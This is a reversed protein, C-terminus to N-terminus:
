LIFFLFFIYTYIVVNKKCTCAQTLPLLFHYKSLRLPALNVHLKEFCNTYSVRHPLTPFIAYKNWSNQSTPRNSISRFLITSDPFLRISVKRGPNNRTRVARSRKSSNGCHRNSSTASIRLFRYFFFSFLLEYM